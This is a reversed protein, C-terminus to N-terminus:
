KSIEIFNNNEDVTYVISGDVTVYFIGILIEGQSTTDFINIGYCETNNVVTTWTDVETKYEAFEKETRLEKKSLNSLIKVAEESTIKKDGASITEVNDLPFKTFATVNGDTDYYSLSGTIKNVLIAPELITKDESIVFVYYMKGEISLHDDSLAIEYKKDPIAKRVLEMAQTDTLEEESSNNSDDPKLEEQSTPIPTQNEETTPKPEKTTELEKTIEPTASVSADTIEGKTGNKKCAVLSGALLLVASCVALVLSKKKM